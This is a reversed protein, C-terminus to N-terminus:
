PSFLFQSTVDQLKLSLDDLCNYTSRWCFYEGWLMGELAFGIFYAQGANLNHTVRLATRREM